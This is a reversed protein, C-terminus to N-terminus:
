LPGSQEIDMWKEKVARELERVQSAPQRNRMGAVYSKWKIRCEVVGAVTARSRQVRARLMPSIWENDLTPAGDFACSHYTLWVRLGELRLPMGQPTTSLLSWFAVWTQMDAFSSYSSSSSSSPPHDGYTTPPRSSFTNDEQIPPDPDLGRYSNSDPRFSGYIDTLSSSYIDYSLSIHRIYTLIGRPRLYQSSSPFSPAVSKATTAANSTVASLDAVRLLVAPDCMSWELGSFKLPETEAHLVKCTLGIGRFRDWALQADHSVEYSRSFGPCWRRDQSLRHRPNHLSHVILPADPDDEAWDYSTTTPPRLTHRAETDPPSPPTIRFLLDPVRPTASAVTTTNTTTTTSLPNIACHVVLPPFLYTYIQLRLERPLLLFPCKAAPPNSPHATIDCIAAPPSLYSSPPPDFPTCPSPSTTLTRTHTLTPRPRSQSTRNPRLLNVPGPPPSPWIDNVM